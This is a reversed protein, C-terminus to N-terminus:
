RGEAEALQEGVAVVVGRDREGRQDDGGVAAAGPEGGLAFAELQEAAVPGPLDALQGLDDRRGHEAALEREAPRDDGFFPDCRVVEEAAVALERVDRAM